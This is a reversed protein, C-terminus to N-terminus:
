KKPLYALTGKEGTHKWVKTYVAELAERSVAQMAVENALEETHLYPHHTFIWVHGLEHAVVAAVEDESLGELFGEEISLSFAGDQGKLREVSVVLRDSRVLSVVVPNPISLVGRLEDALAQIHNQRDLAVRLHPLPSSSADHARKSLVRRSLLTPIIVVSLGVLLAVRFLSRALRGRPRLGSPSSPSGSVPGQVTNRSTTNAM